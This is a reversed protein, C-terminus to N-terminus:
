FSLAEQNYRQGLFNEQYCLQNEEKRSFKRFFSINGSLM